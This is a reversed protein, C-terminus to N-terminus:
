MTKNYGFSFRAATLFMALRRAYGPLVCSVLRHNLIEIVRRASFKQKVICTIKAISYGNAFNTVLLPKEGTPMTNLPIPHGTTGPHRANLALTTTQQPGSDEKTDLKDVLAELALTQGLTWDTFTKQIHEKTLLKLLIISTLGNAVLKSVSEDTLHNAKCLSEFAADEMSGSDKGGSGSHDISAM